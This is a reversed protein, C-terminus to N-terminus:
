DVLAPLSCCQLRDPMLQQLGDLFIDPLRHGIEPVQRLAQVAVPDPGDRDMIGEQLFHLTDILHTNDPRLDAHFSLHPLDLGLLFQDEEADQLLTDLVTDFMRFGRRDRDEKNVPFFPDVDRYTVVPLPEVRVSKRGIPVTLAQVIDPGTDTKGSSGADDVTERVPPCM